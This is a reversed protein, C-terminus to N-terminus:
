CVFRACCKHGGWFSIFLSGWMLATGILKHGADDLKGGVNGIVIFTLAAYIQVTSGFKIGLTGVCIGGIFTFAATLMRAAARSSTKRRSWVEHLKDWLFWLAAPGGLLTAVDIVFKWSNQVTMGPHGLLISAITGRARHILGLEKSSASTMNNHTPSKTVTLDGLFWSSLQM